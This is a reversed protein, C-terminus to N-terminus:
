KNKLRNFKDQIRMKRKDKEDDAKSIIFVDGEHADPLLVRPANCVKGNPLEIVAFDGEFRDITIRM